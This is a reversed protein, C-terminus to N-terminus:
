QGVVVEGIRDGKKFIYSGLQQKLTIINFVFFFIHFIEFWGDRQRFCFLHVLINVHLHEHVLKSGIDKIPLLSYCRYQLMNGSLTPLKTIVSRTGVCLAPSLLSQRTGM